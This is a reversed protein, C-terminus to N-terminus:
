QKDKRYRAVALNVGQFVIAGILASLLLSGFSSDSKSEIVTVPQMGPDIPPAYQANHRQIQTHCAAPDTDPCVDDITMGPHYEFHGADRGWSFNGGWILGLTHGIDGLEDYRHDSGDMVIGGEISPDEILVDFARGWTHWSRCGSAGSIIPGPDTRGQAYIRNQEECTRLTSTVRVEIGRARALGILKEAVRKTDPTLDELINSAM